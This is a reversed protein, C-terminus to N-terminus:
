KWHTEDSRFFNELKKHEFKLCDLYSKSDNTLVGGPHDIDDINATFFERVIGLKQHVEVMHKDFETKFFFYDAIKKEAAEVKRANLDKAYAIEASNAKYSSM